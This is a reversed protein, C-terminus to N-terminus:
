GGRQMRKLMVGAGARPPGTGGSVLPLLSTIKSEKGLDLLRVGPQRVQQQKKVGARKKMRGPTWALFRAAMKRREREGMGVDLEDACKILEAILVYM